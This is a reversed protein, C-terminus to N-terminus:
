NVFLTSIHTNISFRDIVRYGCRKDEDRHHNENNKHKASAPVSDDFIVTRGALLTAKLWANSYKKEM